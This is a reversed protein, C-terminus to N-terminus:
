AICCSCGTSHDLTTPTSPPAHPAKGAIKRKYLDELTTLRDVAANLLREIRDLRDTATFLPSSSSRPTTAYESTDSSEQDVELRVLLPDHLRGRPSEYYESLREDRRRQLDELSPLPPLPRSTESQSRIHGTSHRRPSTPKSTRGRSSSSLSGKSRRRLKRKAKQMFGRPSKEM